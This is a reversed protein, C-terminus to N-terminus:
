STYLGTNFLAYESEQLVTGEESLKLFTHEVYNKLITNDSNGGFSWKVPCMGSLGQIKKEYEHCFAFDFLRMLCEGKDFYIYNYLVMFKYWLSSQGRIWLVIKNRYYLIM